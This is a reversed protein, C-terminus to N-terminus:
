DKAPAVDIVLRCVSPTNNEDTSACSIVTLKVSDFKMDIVTNLNLVSPTILMDRPFGTSMPHDEEHCSIIASMIDFSCELPWTTIDIIPRLPLIVAWPQPKAQLANTDIAIFVRPWHLPMKRSRFEGSMETDDIEGGSISLELLGTFEENPNIMFCGSQSNWLSGPFKRVLECRYRTQNHIEVYFGRLFRLALSESVKPTVTKSIYIERRLGRKLKVAVNWTVLTVSDSHHRVYGSPTQVLRIFVLEPAWCELNLLCDKEQDLSEGEYVNAMLRLGKNTVTYEHTPFNWTASRWCSYSAKFEAPSRAFIGRYQQRREPEDQDTWAFLSLDNTVQAIAEQLRAFANSGEGYILPLYVDFIGLLCYALDEERSTQRDAAWSMRMAVTFNPLSASDRLVDEHIRTIESLPKLLNIKDGILNWAEDYFEVGKSAVLEQLTWGRTFWRCKQFDCDISSDVALDSLYTFCITAEKYWRFMSNIAETLEASSTKDICCSDVWVHPIGRELALRCTQTIKGFRSHTIDRDPSVFEQFSVEDDGNWSHSLIAYPHSGPGAVFKLRITTSDILWMIAHSPDTKVIAPSSRSKGPM